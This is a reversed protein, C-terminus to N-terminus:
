AGNQQEYEAVCERIIRLVEDRSMYSADFGGEKGYQTSRVFCRKFAAVSDAPFPHNSKQTADLDYWVLDAVDDARFEPDPSLVFDWYDYRARFSFTAQRYDGWAQSPPSGTSLYDFCIEPNIPDRDVYEKDIRIVKGLVADGAIWDGEDERQRGIRVAGGRTDLVLRLVHNNKWQIFVVDRRSVEAAEAPVLTLEDRSSFHPYLSAGQPRVKVTEGNALARTVQRIWGM